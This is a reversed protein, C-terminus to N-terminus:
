RRERADIFEILATRSVLVRRGIRFSRLARSAVLEKVTTLGVGLAQAAEPVSYAIDFDTTVSV